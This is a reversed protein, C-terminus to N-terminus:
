YKGPPPGDPETVVRQEFLKAVESASYGLESLIPRTHEGARWAGGLPGADRSLEVGRGYRPYEGFASGRARTRWGLEEGRAHDLIYSASPQDSAVM